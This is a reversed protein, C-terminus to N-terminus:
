KRENTTDALVGTLLLATMTDAFEATTFSGRNPWRVTAWLTDRIARYIVQQDIDSRFVGAEIGRNLTRLWQERVINARPDSGRVLGQDRLYRRDEQFMVTAHPHDDILRLVGEIMARMAPLPELDDVNLASMRDALDNILRELITHVLVNKSEFYHYLSGPHMKTAQGLDRMTTSAVGKQAFVEAAISLVDERRDPLPM